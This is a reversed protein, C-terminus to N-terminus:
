RADIAEKNALALRVAAPAIRHLFAERILSRGTAFGDNVGDPCSWDLDIGAQRLRSDLDTESALPDAHRLVARAAAKTEARQPHAYTHESGLCGYSVRLTCDTFGNSIAPSFCVKEEKLFYRTVDTSDHILSGDPLSLGRMGNGDLLISHGAKPQHAVRLFPIRPAFGVAFSVEENVSEVLETVLAARAMCEQANGELYEAPARLAALAMAKAQSTITMSSVMTHYNIREMIDSPGCAWGIRINALGYAKSGGDVTVVRDAMGPLSALRISRNGPFETRCFIADELVVLDQEVAFEGLAALEDADYLAGTYSPNFLIIGRPRRVRGTDVCREYWRELAARTLKHDQDAATEVSELQVKAMDCWMNIGQYYSQATLFVDGPEAVAHFFGFFLRTVGSDVGLNGAIEGPIGQSKFLEVLADEFADARRLYLYNDLSHNTSDLLAAVGSAVVSPHPRRIGEGHALSIVDPDFWSAGAQMGNDDLGSIADRGRRFNGIADWVPGSGGQAHSAISM